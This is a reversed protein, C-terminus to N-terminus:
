GFYDSKYALCLYADIEDAILRERCSAVKLRVPKRLSITTPMVERPHSVSFRIMCVMCSNIAFVADGSSRTYGSVPMPSSCTSRCICCAWQTSSRKRLMGCRTAVHLEQLLRHKYSKTM